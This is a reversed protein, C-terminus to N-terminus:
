NCQGVGRIAECRSRVDTANLARDYLVVEDVIGQFHGYQGVGLRIPAYVNQRTSQLGTRVLVGNLYIYPTKNNYVVIVHNWDTGLSGSYVAHTPMYSSGHEYVSIGNTGLSVGMGADVLRDGPYPSRSSDSPYNPWFLYHQGSVGGVGTQSESDISHSIMAKVSAELTFTNAPVGGSYSWYIEDGAGDFALANGSISDTTWTPTDPAGVLTANNAETFDTATNGSGEDFRFYSIIDPLIAITTFSTESSWTSWDSSNDQYRVQWYYLTNGTLSTAITHQTTASQSGSDYVINSEFAAGSGTSVRWQGAQQFDGSDGDSFTSATLLPKLIVDTATDVPSTNGPTAPPNNLITFTTENSWASWGTKSDQYRVRWFYVTKRALDTTLTHNTAATFNGSDYVINGVVAFDNNTSVQWQSAQHSDGADGDSFASATLPPALEIVDTAGDAPLSNVPQEPLQDVITTYSTEASWPSWEGKSDRYRVKWYYLTEFTGPVAVVHTDSGTAVGSDYFISNDFETGSDLSIQWQSADHTDGADGDTFASATLTPILPVEITGTAPSGNVPQEPLTNSITSVDTTTAHNVWNSCTDNKIPYVRYCYDTGSILESDNYQMSNNYLNAVETDSLAQDFVRVDDIFGDFFWNYASADHNSTGIYYPTTGYDRLTGTYSNTGALQGDVYLSVTKSTDDVVSVLHHWVGPDYAVSSVGFPVANEPPDETWMEFRFQKHQNYHIDTHWGPRGIITYIWDNAPGAPDDNPGADLHPPVSMPKAWASYTFSSDTVNELTGTGPVELYNDAGDFSGVMGREPDEVITAGGFPTGHNNGVASDIVEDSDGLWEDENLDLQLKAVTQGGVTNFRFNDVYTTIEQGSVENRRVVQAAGIWIPAVDNDLPSSHENLLHWGTGDWAYGSLRRNSRILRLTGSLDSTALGGSSNVGNIMIGTFYGNQQRSVYMSNNGSTAPFYADISFYKNYEVHSENNLSYSFDYQLDFDNDGLIEVYNKPPLSSVNYSIDGDAHFNAVTHLKVQGDEWSVEASGNADSVAYPSEQTSATQVSAGPAWASTDIGNEFDDYRYITSITEFNLTNATCAEAKREIRYGTEGEFVDNWSLTAATALESDPTFTLSEPTSYVPTSCADGAGDCDSDAQDMNSVTPCNDNTGTKPPQFLAGTCISDGDSDNDADDPCLDCLDGLTDADENAEDVNAIAPCNDNAGTKPVKFLAGACIGDDDADDNADNPCIDCADGIGDGDSDTQMANTVAPCNDEADAVGDLDVGNRRPTIFNGRMVSVSLGVKSLYTAITNDETRIVNIRQNNTYGWSVAYVYRGDPTIDIGTPDSINDITDVVSHNSTDIVSVSDGHRNAVYAFLGDPSFVLATPSDGVPISEIVAHDSTRIVSISDDTGIVAYIYTGDPSVALHYPNDILAITEIVTNDSTRIVSISEDPSCSVYAYAGDPTIDITGPRVGLPITAIVSQTARSVVSVDNSYSNTVYIYKGDPTVMAGNPSDGVDVSALLARNSTQYFNLKNTERLTVYTISPTAVISSPATEDGPYVRTLTSNQTNGASNYSISYVSISDQSHIDELDNNTVFAYMPEYGVGTLPLNTPNEDPDNNPITLISNFTGTTTPDFLLRSWSSVAAPSVTSASLNNNDTDITFPGPEAPLSLAGITLDMTGDNRAYVYKGTQSSTIPFYGFDIKEVAPASTSYAGLPTIDPGLATGSGTVRVNVSGEEPDNSAISVDKSFSDIITPSFDVRITCSWNAPLGPEAMYADCTSGALNISFPLETSIDSFVLEGDGNNKVTITRYGSTTIVRNGFPILLDDIDPIDDTVTIDPELGIGHFTVRTPNEFPDNNPIDLTDYFSGAVTPAFLVQFTCSTTPELTVGSCNDSGDVISFPQALPDIAGLSGLVLDAAGDNTVTITQAPAPRHITLSGFAGGHDDTPAISDTITIDPATINPNRVQIFDGYSYPNTGTTVTDIVTNTLTDFVVVDPSYLNTIYLLRGDPTFSMSEPKQSDSMIADITNILTNDSTRIISLTAPSGNLYNAVYVHSGDPHVGIARSEGSIPIVDVITHTSTQIIKMGDKTAVYAYASDPSFDIALPDKVPIDAAMSLDLTRIAHVSDTELSSQVYGVVYLMSSDPSVVTQATATNWNEPLQTSAVITNDSTRLSLLYHDYGYTGPYDFATIYLYEGNPSPALGVPNKILSLTSIFSTPDFIDLAGANSQIGPVVSSYIRSGDPTVAIHQPKGSSVPYTAAVSNDFTNVKYVQGPTSHNIIYAYVPTIGMGSVSITLPNEEPDDSPIDFSDNFNGQTDPAFQIDFNCTSSAALIQDSCNDNVISFPATLSDALAMTGIALPSVGNNAIEISQTTTSSIPLEAFSVLSSSLAIDPGAITGTGYVSITAPSAPDNSPIDFSDSFTGTGVPAFRVVFTCSTSPALTQSSCTDLAGPISFSAESFAAGPITGVTLNATGINQVTITQETTGTDVVSGFDIARDTEQGSQDFVKAHPGSAAFSYTHDHCAKCSTGANGQNHNNAYLTDPHSSEALSHCADCLGDAPTASPDLDTFDPDSSELGNITVPNGIGGINGNLSSRIMTLKDTGHADHCDECQYGGSASYDTKNGYAPFVESDVTNYNDTIAGSHISAEASADYGLTGDTSQGVQHCDLCLESIASTYNLADPASKIRTYTGSIDNQPIHPSDPDHCTTCNLGPGNNGTVNFVGTNGHGTLTFNDKGAATNGTGDEESNAPSTSNHCYTCDTIRKRDDIVNIEWNAKAEAVGAASGHCNDCATSNALTDDPSQSINPRGNAHNSGSLSHCSCGTKPGYKNHNDYPGGMHVVHSQVEAAIFATDYFHCDWCSGISGSGWTLTLKRGSDSTLGNGHCYVAACVNGTTTGAAGDTYVATIGTKEPLDANVHVPYNGDQDINLNKDAHRSDTGSIEPDTVNVEAHCGVCEIRPGYASFTHKHAKHSGGDYDSTTWSYLASFHCDECSAILSGWVPINNTSSDTGKGTIANDPNHCALNACSAQDASANAAYLAAGLVSGNNTDSNFGAPNFAIDVRTRDYDNYFEAPSTMIDAPNHDNNYHCEDCGYNLTEAHLIHANTQPPSDHCGTCNPQFSNDHPHCGACNKGQNHNGARNSDPHPPAGLAHCADCVGDNTLNTPDLDLLNSDTAEFGSIAVPNSVGAVKGDITELVMALKSTGHVEHCAECQYGPNASYDASDGYAPFATAANSNYNGSVGGSHVSAEAVSDYGLSGNGSQGVEHCDLCVESIKSTYDRGDDPVSVFRTADGLNHSFHPLNSDHCVTCQYGPGNQGHLTANYGTTVGHGTAYYGFSSNDGAKDPAAVGSGDPKSNAPASDHCSVCWLDKDTKLSGDTNYIGTKWNTKVGYTNDNVGDFAGGASHCIDCVDTEALDYRGDGNTDTGSKFFPINANDHCSDCYIGPGRADDSDLETHTSHSQSTGRGQSVQAGATYPLNSDPDFLTGTDHGHCEVCGIGSSGSGHAFGNEHSHCDSCATRSADHAASLNDVHCQLCIGSYGDYNGAAPANTYDLSVTIEEDPQTENLLPRNLTVQKKLMFYNPNGGPDYEHSGHCVMCGITPNNGGHRQYSHCAQCLGYDPNEREPGDHKLVRGDGAHLTTVNAKGDTTTSDSDTWHVGHCSTCSVSNGDVLSINAETGSNDPASRFKTPKAAVVAAYDAVIPHTGLGRNNPQNWDSHCDLCMADAQGEGLKLLQPNTEQQGHVDHCRSCTVKGFSVTGPYVYFLYHQPTNAGATPNTEAADWMHSTEADPTSGGPYSGLLNSADGPEFLGSPPNTTELPNSLRKIPVDNGASHCLLCVTEVKLGSQQQNLPIHCNSCAFDHVKTAQVSSAIGLLLIIGSLLSLIKRRM